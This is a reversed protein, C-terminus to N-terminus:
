RLDIQISETTDQRQICAHKKATPVRALTRKRILDKLQQQRGTIQNKYSEHTPDLDFRYTRKSQLAQIKQRNRENEQERLSGEQELKRFRRSTTRNRTSLKPEKFYGLPKGHNNALEESYLAEKYLRDLEHMEMEAFRENQRKKEKEYTEIIEQVEAVSQSSLKRELAARKSVKLGTDATIGHEMLVRVARRRQEQEAAERQRLQEQQRQRESPDYRYNKIVKVHFSKRRSYNQSPAQTPPEQASAAGEHALDPERERMGSGASVARREEVSGDIEPLALSAGPHEPSSSRVPEDEHATQKAAPMPWEILETEDDLAVRPLM